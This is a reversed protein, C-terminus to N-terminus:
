GTFRPLGSWFRRQYRAPLSYTGRLACRKETSSSSGVARRKRKRPVNRNVQSSQFILTRFSPPSTSALQSQGAQPTTFSASIDTHQDQWAAIM